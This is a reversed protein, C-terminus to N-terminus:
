RARHACVAELFQEGLSGRTVARPGLPEMPTAATGGTVYVEGTTIQFTRAKCDFTTRAVLRTVGTTEGYRVPKTYVTRTWATRQDGRIEMDDADFAIVAQADSTIEVWKAAHAPHVALCLLAVIALSRV